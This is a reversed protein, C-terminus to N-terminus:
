TAGEMFWLFCWVSKQVGLLSQRGALWGGVPGDGALETGWSRELLPNARSPRVPVGHGVTAPGVGPM